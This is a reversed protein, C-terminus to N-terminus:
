DKPHVLIQNSSSGYKWKINEKDLTHTIDRIVEHSLDDYLVVYNVPTLFNISAIVLFIFIVISFINKKIISSINKM